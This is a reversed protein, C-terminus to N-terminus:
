RRHDVESQHLFVIDPVNKISSSAKDTMGIGPYPLAHRRQNIRDGIYKWM